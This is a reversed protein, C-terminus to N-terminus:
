FAVQLAVAAICLDVVLAFSMGIGSMVDHYRQEDKSNRVCTNGMVRLLLITVM